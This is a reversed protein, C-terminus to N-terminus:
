FLKLYFSFDRQMRLITFGRPHAWSNLLSCFRWIWQNSSFYNKKPLNQWYKFIQFRWRQFFDLCGEVENPITAMFDRKLMTKRVFVEEQPNVLMRIFDKRKRSIEMGLNKAQIKSIIRWRKMSFLTEKFNLLDFYFPELLARKKDPKDIDDDFNWVKFYLGKCFPLYFLWFLILDRLIDKERKM